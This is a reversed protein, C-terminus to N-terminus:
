KARCISVMYMDTHMCVIIIYMACIAYSICQIGPVCVCLYIYTNSSLVQQAYVSAKWTFNLYIFCLVVCICAEVSIDTHV